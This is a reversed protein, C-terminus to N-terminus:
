WYQTWAPKSLRMLAEMYFYDGCLSADNVGASHPKSGVSHLLIANSAPYNKSTYGGSLAATIIRAQASYFAYKHRDSGLGRAIELLGCAAIAAASSDREELNPIGVKGLMQIAQKLAADKTVNQHLLIAETIQFGVTHVMSLSVIPEQFIMSIEGGRVRRIEAGLPKLRALDIVEGNKRHWQIQGAIIKGPKEILQLISYATVSKGCGSEGVVGVTQGRRISFGVDEVAQVTGEDMIFHTKLGKVELLLESANSM